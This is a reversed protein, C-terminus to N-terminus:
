QKELQKVKAELKKNALYDTSRLIVTAGRKRFADRVDIIQEPSLYAEHYLFIRNSFVLDRSTIAESDGPIKVSQTLGQELVDGLAVKYKGALAVCIDHTENTYPIYFLLFKTGTALQRVVIYDIHIRAGTKDNQLPFGSRNTETNDGLSFDTLFLDLLSLKDPDMKLNTEAQLLENKMQTMRDMQETSVPGSSIIADSKPPIVVTETPQHVGLFTSKPLEDKAITRTESPSRNLRHLDSVWRVSEEWLVGIAGFVVLTFMIRNFPSVTAPQEFAIWWGSRVILLAASVSFCVQAIQYHPPNMSLVGVGIGVLAVAVISIFTWSVLVGWM